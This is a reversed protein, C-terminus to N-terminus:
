VCNRRHLYQWRFQLPSPIQAFNHRRNLKRRYQLSLLMVGPIVFLQLCYHLVVLFKSRIVDFSLAHCRVDVMSLSNIASSLSESNIVLGLLSHSRIVTPSIKFNKPFEMTNYFMDQSRVYFRGVGFCLSSNSFLRLLAFFLVVYCFLFVGFVYSVCDTPISM